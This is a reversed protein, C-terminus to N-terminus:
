PKQPELKVSVSAKRDLRYAWWALLAALLVIGAGIGFTGTVGALLAAPPATTADTGAPLGTYALTQATFLAGMLPVGTSQGLTRSLSLLGSAIGMRQRPAASMIASSNPTQFLGFGFGLTFMRAVFPLPDSAVTLTSMWLCGAIIVVLGVISILRSGFRDALIGAVPAIIGMAIPFSMLLLGIVHIQYGQVMELLFPLIFHSSLVIFVLFAMLLNLGFLPNRFLNLDIMPHETRREIALLAVFGAAAAALLVLALPADFGLRQGLTMGLAYCLLVVMLVVGGPLDFQQRTEAPRSPPVSRLVVLATLFGVPVNVLFIWRWGAFGILVGGLPPGLAIGISVITGMVGLARGRESAPFIESIMAMGLAQMMAAGLGQLARFAILWGVSPSLGCLLSGLTFLALGGMWIRKKDLMDGLRAVMLMLSTLVLAYSLVVWQITAFTTNFEQVLTPLSINVISADLTAMFVGMGLGALALWKQTRNQNHL